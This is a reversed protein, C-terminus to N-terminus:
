DEWCSTDTLLSSQSPKECCLRMGFVHLICYFTCASSWSYFSFTKAPLQYQVFVQDTRIVINNLTISFQRFDYLHHFNAFVLLKTKNANLDLDNRHIWDAVRNM